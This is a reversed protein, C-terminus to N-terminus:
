EAVSGIRYVMSVSASITVEGEAVPVSGSSRAEMMMVPGPNYGGSQDTLEILAGLEVGAAEALLEAAARADAVAARRAEDLLPDPDDIDFQLGSLTNAGDSVVTDLVPGLNGLERVRVRITTEARYGDIRNGSSLTSNNYLPYLHLAGTQMDAPAIGEAELRELVAATAANMADLADRSEEAEQTVGISVLAIDPAASVEGTGTVAIRPPTEEARGASAAAVLLFAPILIVAIKRM